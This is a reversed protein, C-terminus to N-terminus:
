FNGLPLMFAFRIGDASVTSRDRDPWIRGLGLAYGVQIQPYTSSRGLRVAARLRFVGHVEAEPDDPPPTSPIYRFPRFWDWWEQHRRIGVSGGVWWPLRFLAPMSRLLGAEIEWFRGFPLVTAQDSEWEATLIIDPPLSPGEGDMLGGQRSISWTGTGAEAVLSWGGRLEYTGQLGFYAGGDVATTSGGSDSAGILVGVQGPLSGIPAVGGFQRGGGLLNGLSGLSTVLGVRLGDAESFPAEEGEKERVAATWIYHFSLYRDEATRSLPLLFELGGTQHTQEVGDPVVPAGGFVRPQRWAEQYRRLGVTPGVLFWPDVLSGVRWYAGTRVQLLRLTISEPPPYPRGPILHSYRLAPPESESWNAYEIGARFRVRDGLDGMFSLGYHGPLSTRRYDSDPATLVGASLYLHSTLGTLLRGAGGRQAVAGPPLTGSLLLTAVLYRLIWM